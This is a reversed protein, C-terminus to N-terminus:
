KLYSIAKYQQYGNNYYTRITNELGNESYTYQESFLIGAPKIKIEIQTESQTELNFIKLSQLVDTNKDNYFHKQIIRGLADYVESIRAHEDYFIVNSLQTQNLKLNKLEYTETKILKRDKYFNESLVYKGILKSNNDYVYQMTYQELNYRFFTEQLLLGDQSYIEKKTINGSDDYIIKTEASIYEGNVFSKSVVSLLRSTHDYTEVTADEIIEIDDTTNINNDKDIIGKYSITYSGDKNYNIKAEYIKETLKGNEYVVLKNYARVLNGSTNYEQVKGSVIEERKRLLGSKDFYSIEIPIFEDKENYYGATQKNKGVKSILYKPQYEKMMRNELNVKFVSPSFSLEQTYEKKIIGKSIWENVIESTPKEKLLLTAVKQGHILVSLTNNTYNWVGLFKGEFYLYEEVKQDNFSTYLVKGDVDYWTTINEKRDFKYVLKSGDYVFETIIEGNKDKEVVPKNKDYYTVRDYEGVSKELVENGDEDKKYYNQQIKNGWRDLTYLPRSKEDFYTKNGYIDVTFKLTNKTEDYFYHAVETGEYNVDAIARGKNDFFTKVQTNENLAFIPNKAYKNYYYSKTINKDKDLEKVVKGGLGLEQYGIIEGKENKIVVLNDGRQKEIIREIDGDKDTYISKASLSFERSGDKSIRLTLRGNPTFYLRNGYKDRAAIPRHPVINLMDKPKGFEQQILETQPGFREQQPMPMNFAIVGNWLFCLLTLIIILNKM